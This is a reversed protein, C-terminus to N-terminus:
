RRAPQWRGGSSGPRARDVSVTRSAVVRWGLFGAALFLGAVVVFTAAIGEGFLVRRTFMGAVMTIIWVIFGTQLPLPREWVRAIVWALVLGVLFPALTRFVDAAASSEQHTRRGIVVFATVAVLDLALAVLVSRASAPKMM